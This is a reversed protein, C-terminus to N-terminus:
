KVFTADKLPKLNADKFINLSKENVFLYYKKNILIQKLIKAAAIGEDKYNLGLTLLAGKKVSDIDSAFVPINKEKAIKLILNVSSVVTNDNILFFADIKDIDILAHAATHIEMTSNIARKKIEVAMGTSKIKEVLDNVIFNSNAEFSSYVIGVSKIQPFVKLSLSLTEFVPDKSTTGTINKNGKELSNVLGAGVPDSVGVFILPTKNKLLKNSVQAVPTTLAVVVDVKKNIYSQIIPNINKIEGNANSYVIDLNNLDGSFDRHLQEKFGDLGQDIAPHSMLYAVGIKIENEAKQQFLFLSILIVLVIV